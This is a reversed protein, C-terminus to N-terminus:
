LNCSDNFSNLRCDELLKKDGPILIIIGTESESPIIHHPYLPISTNRTNDSLVRSSGHRLPLHLVKVKLGSFLNGLRTPCGNPLVLM